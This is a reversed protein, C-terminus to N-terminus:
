HRFNQSSVGDTAIARRWVSFLGCSKSRSQKAATKWNLSNPCMPACTLLLTAHVTHRCEMRTFFSIMENKRSPFERMMRLVSWGKRIKVNKNFNQRQKNFSGHKYVSIVDCVVGSCRCLLNLWLM